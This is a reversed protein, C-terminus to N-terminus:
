KDNNTARSDAQIEKRLQMLTAFKRGIGHRISDLGINDTVISFADERQPSGGRSTRKASLNM